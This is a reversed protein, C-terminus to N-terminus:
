EIGKRRSDEMRQCAEWVVQLAPHLEKKPVRDYLRIYEEIEDRLGAAVAYADSDESISKIMQDFDGMADFRNLRVAAALVSLVAYSKIEPSTADKFVFRMKRAVADAFSYPYGSVEKQIALTYKNIIPEFESTLQSAYVPLLPEPLKHFLDICDDQDDVSYILQLLKLANDPDYQNISLKEEATILLQAFVGKPNMAPDIARRTDYLADLMQNVSQYREDPNQRTAKQIVYWIGSPVLAPTMVSPRHGTILHYLTKGLQYIDGRHDLDRTGGYTRQEPPSYDLTGMYISARTLVTTDREDLKALGLDSVVIHEGEYVLVNEPKIDRHTHGSIHIANIGKCISEFVNLARNYDDQLEPILGTASDLALPMTFYPPTHETNSNLVEIVNEHNISEMIQVERKFRRLHEVDTETCYKLAVVKGDTLDKASVVRGFGGGGRKDNVVKYREDIIEGEQFQPVM